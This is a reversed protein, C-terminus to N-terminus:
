TVYWFAPGSRLVQGTDSCVSTLLRDKSRVRVTTHRYTHTHVSILHYHRNFKIWQRIRRVRNNKERSCLSDGLSWCEFTACIFLQTVNSLEPPQKPRCCLNHGPPFMASGSCGLEDGLWPPWLICSHHRTCVFCSLQEKDVSLRTCYFRISVNGTVVSEFTFM